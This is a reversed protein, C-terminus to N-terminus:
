VSVFTARLRYKCRRHWGARRDATMPWRFSQQSVAQLAQALGHGGGITVVEPGRREGLALEM